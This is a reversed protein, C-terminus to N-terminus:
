NDDEGIDALIIAEAIERMGKRTNMSKRQMRRYADEGSIGHSRMLVDKAREVMKRTELEEQVIRTQVMLEANEIAVAAQNAVATLLSVEAPSFERPDATYCNLVGIVRGKVNMPVSLLSCLGAKEAVQKNIYRKDEKVDLVQAPKNDRAVM